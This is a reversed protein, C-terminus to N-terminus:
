SQPGLTAVQSSKMARGRGAAASIAVRGSGNGGRYRRCAAFAAIGERVPDRSSTVVVVYSSTRRRVVVVLPLIMASTSWPLVVSPRARACLPEFRGDLGDAPEAM